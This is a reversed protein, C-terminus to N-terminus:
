RVTKEINTCVNLIFNSLDSLKVAKKLFNEKSIPTNWQKDQLILINKGETGVVVAANHGMDVFNNLWQLQLKSLNIKIPTTKIKPLSPVYKYEVFLIGKDGAYMSDPVGNTYSDHIKWKYLDVPLKRHVSKVFSHENM